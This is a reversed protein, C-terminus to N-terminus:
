LYRNGCVLQFEKGYAKFLTRNEAFQRTRDSTVPKLTIQEDFSYIVEMFAYCQMQRSRM